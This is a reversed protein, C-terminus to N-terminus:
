PFTLEPGLELLGAVPSTEFRGESFAVTYTQKRTPVITSIDLRLAWKRALPLRGGLGAAVAFWADSAPVDSPFGKGEARLNGVLFSACLAADVHALSGELWACGGLRASLLSMEITHELYDANGQPAWLAGAFLEWRGLRSRVAASLTPALGDGVLRYAAGGQIGAGFALPESPKEPTAPARPKASEPSLPAPPPAPAPPPVPAPPAERPTLDLLV